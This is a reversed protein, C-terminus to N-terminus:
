QAGGTGADDVDAGADDSSTTAPPSTEGDDDFDNRRADLRASYAGVREPDNAEEPIVVRVLAATEGPTFGIGRTWRRTEDTVTALAFLQLAGRAKTATGMMRDIFVRDLTGRARPFMTAYSVSAYSTELRARTTAGPALGDFRAAVAGQRVLAMASLTWPTRNTVRVEAGDIVVAVGGGADVMRETYALGTEWLGLRVREVSLRRGDWRMATSGSSAGNSYLAVGDSPPAVAFTSAAGANLGVFVREVAESSAGGLDYVALVRATSASSRTLRAAAVIIGLVAFAVLPLRVFVGLPARSKRNRALAVGVGVIYLTLLITVPILLGRVDAKPRFARSVADGDAPRSFRRYLSLEGPAVMGGGAGETFDVFDRLAADALPEHAWGEASLDYPIVGAVGLGLHVAAGWRRALLRPGSLRGNGDDTVRGFLDVFWPDRLDAVTRPSVALFGGAVVWQRLTRRSEPPLALIAASGAVIAHAGGFASPLAPVMADGSTPDTRMAGAAVRAQSAEEPNISQIAATVRGGLGLVGIYTLSANNASGGSFAIPSVASPEELTVEGSDYPGLPAPTLFSRTAGAGLNVTQRVHAEGSPWPTRITLTLDGRATTHPRATLVMTQVADPQSPYQVLPVGEVEQARAPACWALSALALAVTLSRASM